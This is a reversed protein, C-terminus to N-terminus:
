SDSFPFLNAVMSKYECQVHSSSAWDSFHGPPGSALFQIFKPTLRTRHPLVCPSQTHRGSVRSLTARFTCMPKPDPGRLWGCATVRGKRPKHSQGPHTHWSDRRFFTLAVVEHGRGRREVAFNPFTYVSRNVERQTSQSCETSASM